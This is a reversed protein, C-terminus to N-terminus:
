NLIDHQPEILIKFVNFLFLVSLLELLVYNNNKINKNLTNRKLHESLFFIEVVFSLKMEAYM